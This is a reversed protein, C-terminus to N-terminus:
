LPIDEYVTVRRKLGYDDSNRWFNAHKYGCIVGFACCQWNKKIKNGVALSRGFGPLNFRTFVSFWKFIYGIYKLGYFYGVLLGSSMRVCLSSLTMECLASFSWFGIDITCRAFPIFLALLDPFYGLVYARYIVATDEPLLPLPWPNLLKSSLNKFIPIARKGM